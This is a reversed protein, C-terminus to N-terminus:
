IRKEKRLQRILTIVACSAIIIILIWTYEQMVQVFTKKPREVILKINKSMNKLKPINFDRYSINVEATLNYVGSSITSRPKIEFWECIYGEQYFGFNKLWITNNSKTYYIGSNPEVNVQFDWEEPIILKISTIYIHHGKPNYICMFIRGWNEQSPDASFSLNLPMFTIGPSSFDEIHMCCIQQPIRQITFFPGPQHIKHALSAPVKPALAPAILLCSLVVAILGFCAVKKWVLGNKTM